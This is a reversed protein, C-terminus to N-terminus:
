HSVEQLYVNEMSKFDRLRYTSPMQIFVDNGSERDRSLFRIYQNEPSTVYESEIPIEVVGFEEELSPEQNAMTQPPTPPTIAQWVVVLGIGVLVTAALLILRRTSFFTTAAPEPRNGQLRQHLNKEFDTPAAVQPLNSMWLSIRNAEALQSRCESCSDLHKKVQVMKRDSLTKERYEDLFQQINQCQSM